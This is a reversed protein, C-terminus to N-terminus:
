GLAFRGSDLLRGSDSAIRFQPPEQARGNLTMNATYKEGAQGLVVFNVNQGADTKFMNAKAVFPPGVRASFTQSAGVEFSSYAGTEHAAMRWVGGMRDSQVARIEVAAYRGAPIQWRGPAGALCCAGNESWLVIEADATGADITGMPPDARGMEISSGDPAVKVSWWAGGIRIMKGLPQVECSELSGDFVGDGNLDVAIRDYNRDALHAPTFTGDFRGDMDGDSVAVLYDKGDLRVHGSRYGAPRVAVRDEYVRFQVRAVPGKASAVAVPGFENFAGGPLSRSANLTTMKSLDRETDVYLVSREMGMFGVLVERGAVPARFRRLGASASRPAGPKYDTANVFRDEAMMTPNGPAAGDHWALPFTGQALVAPCSALIFLAALAQRM